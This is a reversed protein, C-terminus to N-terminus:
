ARHRGGLCPCEILVPAPLHSMDSGSWGGNEFYYTLKVSFCSPELKRKVDVTTGSANPGRARRSGSAVRRRPSGMSSVPVLGSRRPSREFPSTLRCGTLKVDSDTM